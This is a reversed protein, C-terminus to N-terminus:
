TRCAGLLSACLAVLQGQQNFTVTACMGGPLKSGSRTTMQPNIGLPGLASHVDSNYGDSHMTSKSHPAMHLNDAPMGEFPKPTAPSGVFAPATLEASKLAEPQQNPSCASILLSAGVLFLSRKFM